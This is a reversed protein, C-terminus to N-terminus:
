LQWPNIVPVRTEEFDATNRTVITKRHVIATAAILADAMARPREAALRGWELAVEDGVPLIRDAHDQRLQELWQRLSGAARADTRQRLKIGKM